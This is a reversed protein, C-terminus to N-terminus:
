YLAVLLGEVVWGILGNMFANWTVYYCLKPSFVSWIFLHYRLIICSALLFCGFLCYFFFQPLKARYFVSWKDTNSKYLVKSSALSWYISPAFNGICMLLGVTYINYDDSVGNYANTLNVTAISNTSGFQFFSLHQLILNLLMLIAQNSSYYATWLYHLRGSLIQFVLFLPINASSTQFILISSIISHVDQFFGVKKSSYKHVLIRAILVTISAQFFLRALPVLTKSYIDSSEDEQLLSCSKFVIIELWKPIGEGNVISWNAKYVLCLSALVFSSTFSFYDHTATNCSVAFITLTNFVWQLNNHTKLLEYITHEFFYKQGSNNWGRVFRLCVLVLLHNLIENPNSICSAGVIGITIWWWLQHEEEVFSSGFTSFSLIMTTGLLLATTYTLRLLRLISATTIVTIGILVAYGIAILSYDYNTASQALKAQIDKMRSMIATLDDTQESYGQAVSVLQHYNDMIKIKSADKSFLQLFDAIIVGISNKPIPLNFLSALTPVLDIQQIKTLYEYNENLESVPLVVNRQAIPKEYKELKESIFVLGASTEGASSGGHNGLDNMGHDGMVCLLTSEDISSYIEKIISDMERHKAPMFHSKAGGKHGIHDLGLYHLILVDWEDQNGLQKPLHRTVNLDVQEFDSVFFSNTGDVEDFFEHPFLKLWTDDGFFKMHKNHVHFQRLWSDQEKLNSSSDDEAVNLIADLFNPTSGTTIGKLRPLTVTPPNSYATYGWAKGNNLLEHVFHFNSAEKQFLFDARLADIVVFVLKGFKPAMHIQEDPLYWFQADGQMVSKQPFFGASFTFIAILQLIVLVILRKGMPLDLLKRFANTGETPAANEM